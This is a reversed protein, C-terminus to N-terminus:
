RGEWEFGLHKRLRAIVNKVARDGRPSSPIVISKRCGPLANTRSVKYHGAAPEVEFGQAVLTRRILTMEKTKSM